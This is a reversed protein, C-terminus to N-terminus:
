SNEAKEFRNKRSEGKPLLLLGADLSVLSFGRLHPPLISPFSAPGIMDPPLSAFSAPFGPLITLLLSNIPAGKIAPGNNKITATENM